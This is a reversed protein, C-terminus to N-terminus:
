KRVLPCASRALPQFAQEGPVKVLQIQRRKKQHRAVAARRIPRVHQSAASAAQIAAGPKDFQRVCPTRTTRQM